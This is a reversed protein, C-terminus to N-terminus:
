PRGGVVDSLEFVQPAPESTWPVDPAAEPEVAAPLPPLPLGNQEGFERWSAPKTKTAKGWLGGITKLTPKAKDEMQVARLWLEPHTAALWKLEDPKSAPCMFCASKMPPELGEARIEALCRERDWGWERLPYRFTFSDDGLRDVARRSDAPGCDYGILKTVKEGRAWAAVAPAWTGLFKDMPEAKWKLSCSKRRFALSPLTSNQLCNGEITTYGSGTKSPKSKARRVVTVAPMGRSVLWDSFRAVFEYTEPKESGTDAFLILDPVIGRRAMEVLLATSDVGGGYNVVLPRCENLPKLVPADTKSPSLCEALSTM